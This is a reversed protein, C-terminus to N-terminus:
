VMSRITDGPADPTRGKPWVSRQRHKAGFLICVPKRQTFGGATLAGGRGPIRILAPGSGVRMQAIDLHKHAQSMTSLQATGELNHQHSKDTAATNTKGCPNFAEAGLGFVEPM